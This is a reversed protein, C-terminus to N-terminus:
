PLGLYKHQQVSLKIGRQVCYDLIESLNETEWRPQVFLSDLPIGDTKLLATTVDSVSNCVIKIQFPQDVTTCYDMWYMFEKEPWAHLKPSFSYLAVTPLPWYISMNTEISVKYGNIFLLKCLDTLENLQLLPEGGTIDVDAISDPFELVKDVIDKIEVRQRNRNNLAEPQDCWKCKINCGHTRIFITPVGVLIGEGQYSLYIPDKKTLIM